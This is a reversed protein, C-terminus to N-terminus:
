DCGLELQIIIIMIWGYSCWAGHVADTLSVSFKLEMGTVGSKLGTSEPTDEKKAEEKKKRSKGAKIFGGSDIEQFVM